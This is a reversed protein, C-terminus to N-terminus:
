KADFDIGQLVSAAGPYSFGVREFRVNGEINAADIAGPRDVTEPTMAFMARVRRAGAVAGQLQGTTHAIASLPGYVAGLYSIVVTLQGVTLGGRMVCAGGVIVVLATGLITITGVVVSFLSQQWTIAIRATMT